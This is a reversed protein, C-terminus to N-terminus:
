VWAVFDYYGAIVAYGIGILYDEVSLSAFPDNRKADNRKADPPECARHVRSVKAAIAPSHRFIPRNQPTFHSKTWIEQIITSLPSLKPDSIFFM